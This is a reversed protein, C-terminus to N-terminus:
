PKAEEDGAEDLAGQLIRLIFEGLTHVHERHEEAGGMSIYFGGEHWLVTAVGFAKTEEAKAISECLSKQVDPHAAQDRAMDDWEPMETSSM